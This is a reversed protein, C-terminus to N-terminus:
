YEQSTGDCHHHWARCLHVFNVCVWVSFVLSFLFPFAIRCIMLHMWTKVRSTVSGIGTYIITLAAATFMYPHIQFSIFIKTRSGCKTLVSGVTVNAGQTVTWDSMHPWCAQYYYQDSQMEMPSIAMGTFTCTKKEMSSCCCIMLGRLPAGVGVSEALLLNQWMECWDFAKKQLILERVGCQRVLNSSTHPGPPMLILYSFCQSKEFFLLTCYLDMNLSEFYVWWACIVFRCKLVDSILKM